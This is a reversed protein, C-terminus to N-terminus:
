VLAPTKPQAYVNFNCISAEISSCLKITDILYVVIDSASLIQVLNGQTHAYSGRYEALKQLSNLLLSEPIDIGAPILLKLLYKLSAGHNNRIYGDFFTITEKLIEKTYSETKKTLETVDQLSLSTNSKYLETVKELKSKHGKLAESNNKSFVSYSSSLVLTKILQFILLNLSDLEDKSTPIEEIFFKSKYKKYANNITKLTLKEFYEELAAHTLVCFAKVCDEEQSTPILTKLKIHEKLLTLYLRYTYQKLEQIEIM